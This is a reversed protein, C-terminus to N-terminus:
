RQINEYPAILEVCAIHLYTVGFFEACKEQSHRSKCCSFTPAPCIWLPQPAPILSLFISRRIDLRGASYRRFIFRANGQYNIASDEPGIILGGITYDNVSIVSITVTKFEPGIITRNRSPPKLAPHLCVRLPTKFHPSDSRSGIVETPFSGM